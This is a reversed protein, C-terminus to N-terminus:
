DEEEENEEPPIMEHLTKMAEELVVRQGNRCRAVDTDCRADRTQTARFPQTRSELTQLLLEIAELGIEVVPEEDNDDNECANSSGEGNESTRNEGRNDDKNEEENIDEVFMENLANWLAPPFQPHLPSELRHISFTGLSKREVTDGTERTKTMLILHLDDCDHVNDELAFGHSLMLSQNSKPGCNNYIESGCKTLAASNGAAVFSATQSSPDGSWAIPQNPAHNLLDSAPLLMGVNEDNEDSVAHATALSAVLGTDIKVIANPDESGSSSNRAVAPTGFLTPHSQQSKQM